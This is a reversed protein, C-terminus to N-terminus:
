GPVSFGRSLAELADLAPSVREPELLDGVRGVNWRRYYLGTRGRAFYTSSLLGKEGKVGAIWNFLPDRAMTLLAGKVDPRVVVERLARERGCKFVLAKDLEPDGIEIDALIGIKKGVRRIVDEDSIVFEAGVPGELFVDLWIEHMRGPFEQLILEFKLGRLVGVAKAGHSLGWRREAPGVKWSDPTFVSSALEGLMRQSRRSRLFSVLWLGAAGIGFLLLLGEWGLSRFNYLLHDTLTM